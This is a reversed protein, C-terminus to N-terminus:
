PIKITPERFILLDKCNITTPFESEGYINQLLLWEFLGGNYIYVKDFGLQKLQDCKINPSKDTSNRGYIIIINDEDKLLMNNIITEETNAHITSYILCSQEDIPLTNIIVYKNEIALKMNEFGVQINDSKKKIFWEM